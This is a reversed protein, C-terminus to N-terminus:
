QSNDVHFSGSSIMASCRRNDTQDDASSIRFGDGDFEAESHDATDHVKACNQRKNMCSGSKRRQIISASISLHFILTTQETILALSGPSLILNTQELWTYVASIISIITIDIDASYSNLLHMSPLLKIWATSTCASRRSSTSVFTGNKSNWKGAFTVPAAQLARPYPQEGPDRDYRPPGASRATIM